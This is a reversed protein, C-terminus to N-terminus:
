KKRRSVAMPDTIQTKIVKARLEDRLTPDIISDIMKTYIQLKYTEILQSRITDARKNAMRSQAFFLMSIANVIIAALSTTDKPGLSILILGISAVQPPSVLISGGARSNLFKDTTSKL